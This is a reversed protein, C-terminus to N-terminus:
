GYLDKEKIYNYVGIDLYDKYKVVNSRIKTSSVDENEHKVFHVKGKLDVNEDYGNRSFVILEYNALIYEYRKWNKFDWLNDLGCIFSIKADKFVGQFYNLVQYTYQYEDMDGILSLELNNYGAIMLKIMDCRAKFDILERKEYKNGVPVFIVKDVVKDAILKLAINLHGLHPPNFSGGLIGIKM